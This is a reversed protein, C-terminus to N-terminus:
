EEVMLIEAASIDAQSGAPDLLELAAAVIEEPRVLRLCNHHGMPCISKFCNRCPVDHSLVRHPVGWPTHQPNTLAYIDVVPAGVAAAIHVPGTNNSILLPSIKYLAALAELSLEGAASFTQMSVQRQIGAILDRESKDGTFVVQLSELALLEAVQAFGVPAYRRSPASAGPHVVVWPKELDVGKNELLEQICEMQEPTVTLSLREDEVTAGVAAVLDLQRQVEHRLNNITDTEPVWHTLLQYPNERCHALRLPIDALYCLLASPLPNQSFVTFIVAADFKRRRLKDAMKLEPQSSRRTPTAKLWPADYTLIEDIEPILGAIAAGRSSTLLTVQSGAFTEKLARIAPSTMLVDGITDLRVALINRVGAWGADIQGNGQCRGARSDHPLSSRTRSARRQQHSHM